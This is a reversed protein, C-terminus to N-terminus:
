PYKAVELHLCNLSGQREYVMHKAFSRMLHLGLGGVPTDDLTRDLPPEPLSLPDFAAGDDRLEIHVEDGLDEIRLWLRPGHAHSVLNEFWEEVSLEVAHSAHSNWHHRLAFATLESLLPAWGERTARAQLELVPSSGMSLDIDEAPLKFHRWLLNV